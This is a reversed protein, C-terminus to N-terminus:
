APHIAILGKGDKATISTRYRASKTQLEQILREAREGDLPFPQFLDFANGSVPHLILGEISQRGILLEVLINDHQMGKRPANGFIFNGLSYLIPRGKYIEIGQPIHPHHGIICDAGADILRHAIDVQAPHVNPVYEQGWHLSVLVLDSAQRARRVDEAMLQPDLPLVGPYDAAISSYRHSCFQTYGLFHLTKGKIRVTKGERAQDLTLGAGTQLIGARDLHDLTDLFGPEGADFVHNNALSVLGIGADKMAQAYSPDSIFYGQARKKTTLPTELNVFVLDMEQFLPTLRAFPFSPDSNDCPYEQEFFIRDRFYEKLYRGKESNGSKVRLEPLPLDVSNSFFQESLVMRALARRIKTRVKSGGGSGNKGGVRDVGVYPAGRCSGDFSVDGGVLLRLLPKDQLVPEGEPQLLSWGFRRLPEFRSYLLWEKWGIVAEARTTTKRGATRNQATGGM